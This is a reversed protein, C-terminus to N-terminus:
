AFLVKDVRFDHPLCNPLYDLVQFKFALGIKPTDKSVTDLFRDYYGHGRGLRNGKLDFALGPVIILDIDKKAIPRKCIPEEISHAGKKLDSASLGPLLCPIIKKTKIDCAPVVVKKGLKVAEDIMFRTQVETNHALYFMVIKARRFEKLKFLKGKIKSSRKRFEEEKQNRLKGLILSRLAQKSLM